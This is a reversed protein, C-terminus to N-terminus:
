TKNNLTSSRYKKRGGTINFANNAFAVLHKSHHCGSLTLTVDKSENELGVNSRWVVWVWAGRGHEEGYEGHSGQGM